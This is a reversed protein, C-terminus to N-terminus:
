EPKPVSGKTPEPANLTAKSNERDVYLMLCKVLIDDLDNALDQIGERRLDERLLSMADITRSLSADLSHGNGAPVPM